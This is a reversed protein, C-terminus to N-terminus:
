IESKIKQIYQMKLELDKKEEELRTRVTPDETKLRLLENTKNLAHFVQTSCTLAVKTMQKISKLSLLDKGDVTSTIIHWDKFKLECFSPTSHTYCKPHSDFAFKSLDECSAFGSGLWQTHLGQQLCLLTQDRWVEGKPSLLYRSESNETNLSLYKRCYKNGYSLSYGAEDCPFIQELCTDYYDCSKPQPSCDSFSYNLLLILIFM